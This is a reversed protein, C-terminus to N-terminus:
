RLEVKSTMFVRQICYSNKDFLKEVLFSRVQKGMVASAVAIVGNGSDVSHLSLM